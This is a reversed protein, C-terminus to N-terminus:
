LKKENKMNKVRLLAAYLEPTCTKMLRIIVEKGIVSVVVVVQVMFGVVTIELEVILVMSIITLIGMVIEKFVVM